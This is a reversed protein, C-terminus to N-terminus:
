VNWLKRCTYKGCECWWRWKVRQCCCVSHEFRGWRDPFELIM